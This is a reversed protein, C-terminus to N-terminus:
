YDEKSPNRTGFYYEYDNWRKKPKVYNSREAYDHKWKLINKAVEKDTLLEHPNACCERLILMCAGATICGILGRLASGTDVGNGSIPVYSTLICAAAAICNIMLMAYKIHWLVLTSLRGWYWMHAIVSKFNIAKCIAHIIVTAPFILLIGAAIAPVSRESLSITIASLM